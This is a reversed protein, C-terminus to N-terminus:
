FLKPNEGTPNKVDEGMSPIILNKFQQSVLPNLVLTM